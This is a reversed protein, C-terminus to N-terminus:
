VYLEEVTDAGPKASLHNLSMPGNVEEMLKAVNYGFGPWNKSSFDLCANATDTIIDKGEIIIQLVGALWGIEPQLGLKASAKTILAALTVLHCRDVADALAGLGLGLTHVGKSLQNSNSSFKITQVEPTVMTHVSASFNGFSQGLDHVCASVDGKLDQFYQMIGSLVYCAGSSCLNGKTWDNMEKLVKGLKQGASRFDHRMMDVLGAYLTQYFDKGHLLVAAVKGLVTANGLRLVNAEQELYNLQEAVGCETMANGLANLASGWYGLATGPQNNAFSVAGAAIKEEAVHFVEECPKFDTLAMDAEMLIGEAINCVFSHCGSNTISDSIRGLDKGLEEWQSNQSHVIIKQFDLAVDSGSVFLQLLEGTISAISHKHMKTAGDEFIRGLQPVGCKNAATGLEGFFDGLKSLAEKWQRHQLTFAFDKLSWWANDLDSKCANFNTLGVQLSSLMGEFVICVKTSCQSARVQALLSGMQIGAGAYDGARVDAAVARLELYVDASGVAIRPFGSANISVQAKKLIPSLNGIADAVRELGCADSKAATATIDLGAAFQEVAASYNKEHIETSGAEFASIAPALAEKCGEANDATVSIVRLLGDLFGCVKADTGCGGTVASWKDLLAGLSKGVGSPDDARIAVAVKTM